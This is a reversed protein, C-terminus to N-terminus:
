VLVLILVKHKCDKFGGRLGKLVKQSINIYYIIYYTFSKRTRIKIIKAKIQITKNHKIKKM